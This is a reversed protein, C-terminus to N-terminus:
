PNMNGAQYTTPLPQAAAWIKRLRFLNWERVAWWKEGTPPYTFRAFLWGPRILYPENGGGEVWKWRYTSRSERQYDGAPWTEVPGSSTPADEIPLHDWHVSAHGDKFEMVTISNCLCDFLPGRWYGTPPVPIAVRALVLVALMAAAIKLRKTRRAVPTPVTM